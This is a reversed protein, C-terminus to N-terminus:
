FTKIDSFAKNQLTVTGAGASSSFVDITATTNYMGNQKSWIAYPKYWHYKEWTPEYKKIVEVITNRNKSLNEVLQRLFEIESKLSKTDVETESSFLIERAEDKTLIGSAVLEQLSESSPQEKLRWIIKM